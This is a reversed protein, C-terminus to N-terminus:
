TWFACKQGYSDLNGLHSGAVVVVEKWPRYKNCRRQQRKGQTEAGEAEAGMNTVCKGM